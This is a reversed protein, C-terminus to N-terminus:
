YTIISLQFQCNVILYDISSFEYPSSYVPEFNIYIICLIDNIRSLLDHYGM